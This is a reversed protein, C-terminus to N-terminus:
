ILLLFYIIYLLSHFVLTKGATELFVIPAAIPVFVLDFRSSSSAQTCKATETCSSELDLNQALNVPFSIGRPAGHSLIEARPPSKCVAEITDAKGSATDAITAEKGPTLLARSFSVSFRGVM